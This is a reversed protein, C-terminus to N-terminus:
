LSADIGGGVRESMYALMRRAEAIRSMYFNCFLRIPPFKLKKSSCLYCTQLNCVHRRIECKRGAAKQLAACRYTVKRLPAQGGNCLRKQIHQNGGRGADGGAVKAGRSKKKKKRRLSRKNMGEPLLSEVPLHWKLGRRWVEGSSQFVARCVLDDGFARQWPLLARGPMSLVLRSHIIKIANQPREVQTHAKLASSKPDSLAARIIPSM